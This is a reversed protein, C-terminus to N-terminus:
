KSLKLAQFRLYIIIIISIVLHWINAVSIPVSSITYTTYLYPIKALVYKQFVVLILTAVTVYAPILYFNKNKLPNFTKYYNKLLKKEQIGKIYYVQSLLIFLIFFYSQPILKIIENITASQFPITLLFLVAVVAFFALFLVFAAPIYLLPIGSFFVKLHRRYNKLNLKNKTLYNYQITKSITYIALSAIITAIVLFTIYFLGSQFGTQQILDPNAMLEEQTHTSIFKYFPHLKALFIHLPVLLFMALATLIEIGFSVYHKKQIVM